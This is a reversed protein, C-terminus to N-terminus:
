LDICRAVPTLTTKPGCYLGGVRRWVSMIVYVCVDITMFVTHLSLATSPSGRTNCSERRGLTTHDSGLCCSLFDVSSPSRSPGYVM